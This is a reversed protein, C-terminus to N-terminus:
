RTPLARSWSEGNTVVENLLETVRTLKGSRGIIRGDDRQYQRPHNCIQKLATLLALIRGRREFSTTGLGKGSFADEVTARYLTAQERTLTCHVTMETKPPLDVSVDPDDKQRRLVFPAILRRLRLAADRDHWREIPM